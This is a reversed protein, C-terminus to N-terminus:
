RWTDRCASISAYEDLRLHLLPTAHPTMAGCRLTQEGSDVCLRGNDPDLRERPLTRLLRLRRLRNQLDVVYDAQRHQLVWLSERRQPALSQSQTGSAFLSFPANTAWPVDCKPPNLTVVVAATLSPTCECPSARLSPRRAPTVRVPASRPM